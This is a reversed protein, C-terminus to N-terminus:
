SASPRCGSRGRASNCPLRSARTCTSSRWTTSASAPWSSRRRGGLEVAPTRAFTDRNSVYAHEHCDTGSHPFVWSSRPSASGRAGREVSCIIVAAAMDVDNNSNMYKRYPLGVLRNTPSTTRIEEASKAERIWAHPNAAAVESFRAWLESVAVLHDDPSAGPPPM